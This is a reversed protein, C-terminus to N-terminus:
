THGRCFNAFRNFCGRSQPGPASSLKGQIRKEEIQAVGADGDIEANSHHNSQDNARHDRPLGEVNERNLVQLLKARQLGNAYRVPSYDPHDKQLGQNDASRAVRKAHTNGRSKKRSSQVVHRSASDDEGPLDHRANPHDHEQHDSEGTQDADPTDQYKFGCDDESSLCMPVSPIATKERSTVFTKPRPSVWTCARRPMSRFIRKPSSVMNTPGLPLPFVVSSLTM